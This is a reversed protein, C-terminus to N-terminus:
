RPAFGAQALAARLTNVGNWMCDGEPQGAYSAAPAAFSHVTESDVRKCFQALAM